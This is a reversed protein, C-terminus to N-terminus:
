YFLKILDFNMVGERWEGGERENEGSVCTCTHNGHWEVAHGVLITYLGSVHLNISLSTYSHESSLTSTHLLYMYILDGEERRWRM